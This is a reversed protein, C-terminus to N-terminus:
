ESRCIKVSINAEEIARQWEETIGEDTYFCCIQDISAFPTLDQKGLKSSDVIAIVENASEIFKRKLLAEQLHVETMGKQITFGSCSVFAKQIHLERILMESFLGTLSSGDSNLLGGILIVSNASNAALLRAVDIGNTVVRLRERTELALALYYATSSADLLISDGNSVMEAACRGIIEKQYVHEKHRDSFSTGSFSRSNKLVAGGHIRELRGEEELANLDNRITGESVKFLEALEVVRSGPKKRLTELISQRREYATVFERWQQIRYKEDNKIISINNNKTL